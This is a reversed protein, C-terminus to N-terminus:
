GNMIMNGIEIGVGRGRGAEVEAGRGIMVAGTRTAKGTMENGEETEAESEGMEILWVQMM